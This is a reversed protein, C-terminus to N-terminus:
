SKSANGVLSYMMEDTVMIISRVVAVAHVRQRMCEKAEQETVTGALVGASLIIYAM